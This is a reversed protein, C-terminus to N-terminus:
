YIHTLMGDYFQFELAGGEALDYYWKGNEFIDDPAGFQDLVQQYTLFRHKRSRVEYDADQLLERLRPANRPRDTGVLPAAHRATSGTAGSLAGSSTTLREIAAALRDLDVPASTSAVERTPAELRNGLTEHLARVERTLEEIAVRLAPDQAASASPRSTDIAADRPPGRLLTGVAGGALGFVLGIGAAVLTSSNAM